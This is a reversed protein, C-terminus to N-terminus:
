KDRGDVFHVPTLPMYNKVQSSTLYDVQTSEADTPISVWKQGNDDKLLYIIQKGDDSRYMGPETPLQDKRRLAYSVMDPSVIYSEDEVSWWIPMSPDDVFRAENILYLDDNIVLADGEDADKLSIEKWDCEDWVFSISKIDDAMYYPSVITEGRTFATIRNEGSGITVVPGEVNLRGEVTSGNNMIARVHKGDAEDPSIDELWKNDNM